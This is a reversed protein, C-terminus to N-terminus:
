TPKKNAKKAENTAEDLPQRLDPLKGGDIAQLKSPEGFVRAGIRAAVSAMGSPPSHGYTTDLLETKRHGMARALNFKEEGAVLSLSAFTHRVSYM